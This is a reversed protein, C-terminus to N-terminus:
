NRVHPFLISLKERAKITVEKLNDHKLLRLAEDFTVWRAEMFGEDEGEANHSFSPKTSLANALFGQTTTTIKSKEQDAFYTYSETIIRGEIKVKLGAEEWTEREATKEPSENKEIFGKPFIWDDWPKDRHLLLIIPQKNFISYVVAGANNLFKRKYFYRSLKTLLSQNPFPLVFPDIIFKLLPTM